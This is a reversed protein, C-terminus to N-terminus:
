WRLLRPGVLAGVIAFLAIAGGYWLAIFVMSDDSCHVSYAIAGVGGAVLGALAGTEVLHTPAAKRLAWMLTGFPLISFVPILVACELWHTGVAMKHWHGTSSMSLVVGALVLMVGFPAAVFAILWPIANGPRLYKQLFYFAIGTVSAAFLVKIALFGMNAFTGGSWGLGLAALSVSLVLASAALASVYIDRVILRPNVPDIGVSLIRVLEETNM